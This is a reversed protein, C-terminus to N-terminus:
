RLNLKTPWPKAKNTHKYWHWWKRLKDCDVNYISCSKIQWQKAQSDRSWLSSQPSSWPTSSIHWLCDEFLFTQANWAHCTLRSLSLQNAVRCDSMILCSDHSSCNLRRKTYMCHMIWAHTPNTDDAKKTLDWCVRPVWVWSLLKAVFGWCALSNRAQM